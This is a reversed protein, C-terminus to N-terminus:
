RLPLFARLVFRLSDHFSSEGLDLLQFPASSLLFSCRTLSRNGVHLEAFSTAQFSSESSEEGKLVLTPLANLSNELVSFRRLNPSSLTCLTLANFADRGFQISQLTDSEITLRKVKPYTQTSFDLSEWASGKITM